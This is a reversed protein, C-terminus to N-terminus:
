LYNPSNCHLSANPTFSLDLSSFILVEGRLLFKNALQKRIRAKKEVLLNYGSLHGILFFGFLFYEATLKSFTPVKFFRTHVM